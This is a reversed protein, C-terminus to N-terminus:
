RRGLVRRVVNRLRWGMGSHIGVIEKSLADADARAREEVELAFACAQQELAERADRERDREVQLVNFRESLLDFRQQLDAIRKAHESVLADARDSAALHLRRERECQEFEQELTKRKRDLRELTRELRAVRGVADALADNAIAFRRGLARVRAADSIPSARVVFQLIEHDPDGLIAQITEAPFEERRVKPVLDSEEFLPLTTQRMEDISFGAHLLLEDITKRTFFRLHTEDLLGLERYEFRGALLALRVAGHGINPFSAVVYGHAGLHARASELIELPNRVHELVDGFVIVDFQREGLIRSLPTVDLDAAFAEDCRERARELAHANVDIGTVSCGRGGLAEGLYGSACGVDLVRKGAGVM